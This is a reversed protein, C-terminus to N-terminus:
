PFKCLFKASYCFPFGMWFRWQDWTRVVFFLTCLEWKKRDVNGSRQLAIYLDGPSVPPNVTILHELLFVSLRVSDRYRIEETRFCSLFAENFQEQKASDLIDGACKLISLADHRNVAYPEGGMGWLEGLTDEPALQSASVGFGGRQDVLWWHAEEKDVADPHDTKPSLELGIKYLHEHIIREVNALAKRDSALIVMDDVYRAYRIRIHDPDCQANVENVYRSVAQDLPFLLINAAYASLAPGQPIGILPDEVQMTKGSQPDIYNWGFLGELLLDIVAEAKQQKNEGLCLAQFKNQTFSLAETLPHTLVDRIARKQINDYYGRIDLKARYIYEGDLLRIGEQLFSIFDKWCDYYHRFLGDVPLREGRLAQM